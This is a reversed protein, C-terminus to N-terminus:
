RLKPSIEPLLEDDPQEDAAPFLSWLRSKDAAVTGDDDDKDVAVDSDDVHEPLWAGDFPTWAFITLPANGDFETEENGGVVATGLLCELFVEIRAPEKKWVNWLGKNQFINTAVASM